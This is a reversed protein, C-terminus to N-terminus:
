LFRRSPVQISQQAAHGHYRHSPQARSSGPLGSSSGLAYSALLCISIVVSVDCWCCGRITLVRLDLDSARVPQSASGSRPGATSEMGVALGAIINTGHGTTSAQTEMSIAGASLNSVPRRVASRIRTTLHPTQQTERGCHMNSQLTERNQIAPATCNALETGLLILFLVQAIGKVPGYEYDTYYQTMGILLYATIIGILGCLFFNWRCM